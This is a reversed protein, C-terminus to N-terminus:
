TVSKATQAIAIEIETRPRRRSLASSRAAKSSPTATRSSSSRVGTGAQPRRRGFWPRCAPVSRRVGVGCRSPPGARKRPHLLHAGCEDGARCGADAVGEDAAEGLVAVVEDEDGAVLGPQLRQGGLEAGRVADRDLHQGGVEGLVVAASTDLRSQGVPVARDVDQDVVGPERHVLPEHGAVDVVLLAHQPDEDPGDEPEGTGRDGAHELATVARDDVDRRDGAEKGLAGVAGGLRPDRAEALAQGTVDGAGPHADQRETGAVDCVSNWSRAPMSMRRVGSQSQSSASSTTSPANAARARPTTTWTGPAWYLVM